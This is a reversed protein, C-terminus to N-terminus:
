KMHGCGDLLRLSHADLAHRRPERAARASKQALWVSAEEESTLGQPTPAPLSGSWRTEAAEGGRASKERAKPPSALAAAEAVGGCMELERRRNSTPSLPPRHSPQPSVAGVNEKADDGYAAPKRVDGLNFTVARRAAKGGAHPGDQSARQRRPSPMLVGTEAVDIAQVGPEGLRLAVDGTNQQETDRARSDPPDQSTAVIGRSAFAARARSLATHAQPDAHFLRRQEPADSGAGPRPSFEDESMALPAARPYKQASHFPSSLGGDGEGADASPHTGATEM